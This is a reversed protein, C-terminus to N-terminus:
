HSFLSISFSVDPKVNRNIVHLMAVIKMHFIYYIISFKLM